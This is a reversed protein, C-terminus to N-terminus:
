RHISERNFEKIVEWFNQPDLSAAGVLAGDIQPFKAYEHVNNQNVTGGYIVRCDKGAMKQIHDILEAAHEGTDPRSNRMTSIAWVPEYVFIVKRLDKREIDKTVASFQKTVIKKMDAKKAGEEGGLCVIPTIKHKLAASLKFAVMSDTEGFFLRRESHGLIVYSVNMAKFMTPSLEGTFAGEEEWSMNQAGLKINHSYHSFAPLFLAPPCIAVEVNPMLYM